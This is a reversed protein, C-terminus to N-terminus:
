VSFVVAAHSGITMCLFISYDLYMELSPYIFPLLYMHFCMMQGLYSYVESINPVNHDTFCALQLLVFVTQTWNFSNGLTILKLFVPTSHCKDPALTLSFTSNKNLPYLTETKYIFTLSFLM